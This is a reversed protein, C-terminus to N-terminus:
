HVLELPLGVELFELPSVVAGVLVLHGDSWQGVPVQRENLEPRWWQWGSVHGNM